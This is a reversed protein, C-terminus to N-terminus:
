KIECNELKISSSLAYCSFTGQGDRLSLIGGDPSAPDSFKSTFRTTTWLTEDVTTTATIPLNVSTAPLTCIIANDTIVIREENVFVSVSMPEVKYTFVGKENAGFFGMKMSSDCRVDALVATNFLIILSLVFIKM